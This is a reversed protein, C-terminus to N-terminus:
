DPLATNSLAAPHEAISHLLWRRMWMLSPMCGWRLHCDACRLLGRRQRGRARLRQLPAAAAARRRRRPRRLQPGPAGAARARLQRGVARRGTAARGRQPVVPGLHGRPVDRGADPVHLGGAHPCANLCAHRDGPMPLAFIGDADCSLNGPSYAVRCWWGTKETHRSYLTCCPRTERGSACRRSALLVQM